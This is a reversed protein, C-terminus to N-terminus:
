AVADKGFHQALRLWADQVKLHAAETALWDGNNAAGELEACAAAFELAGIARSASQLRHAGRALPRAERKEYAARLEALAAAAHAFFGDTMERQLSPSTGAMESLTSTDWVPLDARPAAPAEQVATQAEIDALDTAMESLRQRVADFDDHRASEEARAARAALAHAGVMRAAGKIRHALRAAAAADGSGIATELEALDRRTQAVFDGLILLEETSSAALEGLVARDLV